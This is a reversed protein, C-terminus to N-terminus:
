SVMKENEKSREIIKVHSEYISDKLIIEGISDCIIVGSLPNKVSVIDGKVDVDVTSYEFALDTNILECNILKLNECYCFPQTSEIKCNELTVNKSYWALYAGKIYSDKVYVNTAHWFADKTDLISNTIEVNENYQFSYKGSMKVNDLAINSSDLFLYSANISTNLLKINNSKWGFEESDITCKKFSVNDCERVAKVSEILTDFFSADKVYWIPARADKKFYSDKVSFSTAHWLPYRLCFRSNTIKCNRSEKLASEGDSPGDFTVNEVLADTLNYLARECDLTLNKIVKEM